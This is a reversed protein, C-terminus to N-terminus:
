RLHPFFLDDVAQPALVDRRVVVDISESISRVSINLHSYLFAFINLRLGEEASFGDAPNYELNALIRNVGSISGYIWVAGTPQAYVAADTPEATTTIRGAFRDGAYYGSPPAWTILLGVTAPQDVSYNVRLTPMRNEDRFTVSQGATTAIQTPADLSFTQFGEPSQEYNISIYGTSQFGDRDEITYSFRDYKAAGPQPVYRV